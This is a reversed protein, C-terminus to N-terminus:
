KPLIRWANEHKIADSWTFGTLPYNDPRKLRKLESRILSSVDKQGLVFFQNPADPTRISARLVPRRQVRMNGLTMPPGHPQNQKAM